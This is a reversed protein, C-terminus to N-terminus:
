EDFHSVGINSISVLPMHLGGWLGEEYALKDDKDKNHSASFTNKM